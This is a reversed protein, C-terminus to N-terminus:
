RGVRLNERYAEAEHGSKAETAEWPDRRDAALRVYGRPGAPGGWGIENWATPHAYYSKVVDTVVRADFFVRPPMGGWAAHELTGQQMAAILDDQQGPALAHFALGHAGRAEADLAAIARRWAEQMPPLEAHRYGDRMDNIMKWDVLAAVPIPQQRDAPQPVVRNCLARLTKWEAESFFRHVDPDIALRRDIVRRTQENWSPTNRKSFVDYGPYLDRM